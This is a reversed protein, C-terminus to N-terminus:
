TYAHRQLCRSHRQPHRCAPCLGPRRLSQSHAFCAARPQKPAELFQSLPKLDWIEKRVPGFRNRVLGTWGEQCHPAQCVEPQDQKLGPPLTRASRTHLGSLQVGEQPTPALSASQESRLRAGARAKRRLHTTACTKREYLVEFICYGLSFVISLIAWAERHHAGGEPAVWKAELAMEM